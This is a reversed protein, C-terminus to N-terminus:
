GREIGTLHQPTTIHQDGARVAATHYQRLFGLNTIAQFDFGGLQNRTIERAQMFRPATITAEQQRSYGVVQGRENIDLAISFNGGLTGLDTM